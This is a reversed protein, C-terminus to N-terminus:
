PVVWMFSPTRDAALIFWPDIAHAKTFDNVAEVVHITPKNAFVRFDHGAIIGGSRVKPSWLTLDELVADYVHNADIYALDLSGDPVDQVADASFQRVITCNLPRLRDSADRFSQLMLREQADPALSNKTDQWAPYSVWPDVCLMHMAPNSACFAASYAGRWVGIEAGKTFGLERCLGPLHNRGVYPLRIPLTGDLTVDWRKLIYDLTNVPTAIM